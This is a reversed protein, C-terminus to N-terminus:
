IEVGSPILSHERLLEGDSSYVLLTRKDFEALEEGDAVLRSRYRTADGTREGYRRAAAVFEVVKDTVVNAELLYEGTLRNTIALVGPEDEDDANGRFRFTVDVDGADLSAEGDLVRERLTSVGDDVHFTLTPRRPDSGEAHWSVNAVELNVSDRRMGM